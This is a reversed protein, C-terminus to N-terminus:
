ELVPQDGAVARNRRWTWAAYILHYLGFTVAMAFNPV